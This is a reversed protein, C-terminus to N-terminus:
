VVSKRDISQQCIFPYYYGTTDNLRWNTCSAKDLIFKCNQLFDMDLALTKYDLNLENPNCGKPFFGVNYLNGQLLKFNDNINCWDIIYTQAGSQIEANIKSTELVQQQYSTACFEITKMELVGKLKIHKNVVNQLFNSLQSSMGNVEVFKTLKKILIAVQNSFITYGHITKEQLDIEINFKQFYSVIDIETELLIHSKLLTTFLKDLVNANVYDNKSLYPAAWADENQIFFIMQEYILDGLEIKFDTSKRALLKISHFDTIKCFDSYNNPNGVLLTEEILTYLFTKVETSFTKSQDYFVANTPRAVRKDQIAEFFVEASELQWDETPINFKKNQPYSALFTKLENSVDNFSAFLNLKGLTLSIPFKWYNNEYNKYYYNYTEFEFSKLLIMFENESTFNFHWRIMHNIFRELCDLIITNTFGYHNPNEGKTQWNNLWEDYKEYDEGFVDRREDKINMENISNIIIEKFKEIGEFTLEKKFNIDLNQISRISPYEKLTAWYMSPYEGISAGPDFAICEAILNEIWNAPSSETFEKM